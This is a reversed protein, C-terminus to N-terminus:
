KKLSKTKKLNKLNDSKERLANLGLMKRLEINANLENIDNQKDDKLQNYVITNINNLDKPEVDPFVNGLDREYKENIEMMKNFKENSIEDLFKNMEDEIKESEIRINKEIKEWVENLNKEITNTYEKNNFIENIDEETLEKNKTTKNLFDNQYDNIEILDMNLETKQKSNKVNRTNMGSSISIKTSKDSVVSNKSSNGKKKDDTLKEAILKSMQKVPTKM